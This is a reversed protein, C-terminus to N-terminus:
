KRKMEDEKILEKYRDPECYGCVGKYFKTAYATPHKEATHLTGFVPMSDIEFSRTM